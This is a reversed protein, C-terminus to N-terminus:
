RTLIEMLRNNNKLAEGQREMAKISREQQELLTKYMENFKRQCEDRDKNISIMWEKREKQHAKYMLFLCIFLIGIILMYAGYEAFFGLIEIM